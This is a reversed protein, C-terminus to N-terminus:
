STAERFANQSAKTLCLVPVYLMDASLRRIIVIGVAIFMYLARLGICGHRQYTLKAVTGPVVLSAQCITM